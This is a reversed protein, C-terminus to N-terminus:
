RSLADKAQVAGADQGSSDEIWSIKSFNIQGNGTIKHAFVGGTVLGDTFDLNALPALITGPVGLAPGSPSKLSSGSKNLAISKANPFNYFIKGICSKLRSSVQIDKRSIAIDEGVINIIFPGSCTGELKLVKADELDKKNIKFVQNSGHASLTMIGGSSKAKSNAKRAAMEKSQDEFFIWASSVADTVVTSNISQDGGLVRSQKSDFKGGNRLRGVVETRTLDVDGAVMMNGDASGNSQKYSGGVTWSTCNESIKSDLAFDSVSVNGVACTPGQFDSEKYNIDSGSCVLYDQPRTTKECEAASVLQSGTLLVLTIFIPGRVSFKLFINQFNM